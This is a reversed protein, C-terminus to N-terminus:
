GGNRDIEKDDIIIQREEDGEMEQYDIEIQRKDRLSSDIQAM